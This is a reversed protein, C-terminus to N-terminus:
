ASCHTDQLAKYIRPETKCKLKVWVCSSVFVDVTVDRYMNENSSHVDHSWVMVDRSAEILRELPIVLM